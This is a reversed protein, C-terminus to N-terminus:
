INKLKVHCTKPLNVLREVIEDDDLEGDLEGFEFDWTLLTILMRLELYALKKGFCQRPGTSFALNPGANPCFVEKPVGDAGEEMKLWREPKYEAVDDGWPPVRDKHSQCAASRAAEPIDIAPQTLSPGTIACVVNVGEPVPYGLIQTDCLTTRVIITAVSAYRLTEEMVAELYPISAGTIEQMTPRRAEKSAKAHAQRLEHRLRSQIGQHRSMYKVWWSMVTATTDHGGLLYGLLEDRIVPSYFDPERDAKKAANMERWLLQDLASERRGEGGDQLKKVSNRTQRRILGRRYWWARAHRPILMALRQGWAPFPSSTAIAIMERIDFLADIEPDAPAQPFSVPEDVTPLPALDLSQIHSFERRLTAKDEDLGFAVSCIIDVTALSFDRDAVFPRGGGKELKLSWLDVLGLGREYVRPASVENLFAPTMLDRLLERHVRFRPDRSEMTMHFNPAMLGMCEKNRTGRDFEKPRRACIDVVERYDSVVVTPKECPHIFIQALPSGHRQPQSWLWKRRYKVTKIEAIDGLFRTEAEENHPIRPLPHQKIHFGSRYLFLIIKLAAFGVPLALLWGHTLFFAM